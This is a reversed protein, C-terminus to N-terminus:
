NTAPGTVVVSSCFDNTVGQKQTQAATVYLESESLAQDKAESEGTLNMHRLTHVLLIANEEAKDWGCLYHILKAIVQYKDSTSATM